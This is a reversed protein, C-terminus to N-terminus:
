DEITKIEFLFDILRKAYQTRILFAHLTVMIELNYKFEEKIKAISQYELNNEGNGEVYQLLNTPLDELMFRAYNEIVQQINLYIRECLYNTASKETKFYKTISFARSPIIPDEDRKVTVIFIKGM